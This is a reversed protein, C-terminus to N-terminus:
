IYDPSHSFLGAGRKVSGMGASGGPVASLNGGCMVGGHQRRLQLVRQPQRKLKQACLFFCCEAPIRLAM